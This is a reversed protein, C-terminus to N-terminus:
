FLWTPFLISTWSIPSSIIPSCYNHKKKWRTYLTWTIIHFMRQYQLASWWWTSNGDQLQYPVVQRNRYFYLLCCSAITPCVYMDLFSSLEPFFLILLLRLSPSQNATGFILWCHTAIMTHVRLSLCSCTCLLESLLGGLSGAKDWCVCAKEKQCVSVREWDHLRVCGIKWGFFCSLLDIKKEGEWEGGINEGLFRNM